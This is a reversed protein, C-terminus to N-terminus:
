PTRASEVIRKLERVLLEIKSIKRVRDIEHSLEPWLITTSIWMQLDGRRIHYVLSEPPVVDLLRLLDDLGRASYGTHVGETLYFQFSMRPPLRLRWAYRSVHERYEVLSSHILFTLAEVYTEFAEFPNTYPSFYSHVEGPGGTKLSMYHYHDSTGLLRWYNLYEGGIAKVYPEIWTYMEFCRKQMLNGLWASTDKEIDAWSITHWPPIDYIDRVEYKLGAMSVTLMEIGQEICRRILWALFEQIGSEPWHHEGFTEYDMAVLVLDGPTNRLWLSYKDATLPYQNWSRDSFRFGIDDSLRCNRLLLRLDCDYARYVYNPSRFGLVREVGETLMTKFGLRYVSSAIDNNYLFETNEISIPDYNFIDRMLGRHLMVQELFEELGDPHLSALSHYYTQCILDVCGTAVIETFVDLTEPSYKKAQEIWIGSISLSIRCKTSLEEILNLLIRTTPIYCKKSVRLFIKRDKDHDFLSKMLELSDLRGELYNKLLNLPFRRKLRYPQHVEFMLVISRVM